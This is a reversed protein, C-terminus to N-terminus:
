RLSVARQVYDGKAIRRLHYQFYFINFFFTMLGSLSVGYTQEIVDRMKFYTWIFLGAWVLRFLAAAGLLAPDDGGAIIIAVPTLGVILGLALIGPAKCSPDARHAWFAQRFMMVLPLIGLTPLWLVLVVAWHLSPPRPPAAVAVHGLSAPASQM